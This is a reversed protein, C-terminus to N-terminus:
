SLGKGPAATRDQSPMLCALAYVLVAFLVALPDAPPLWGGLVVFGLVGIGLPVMMRRLGIRVPVRQLVLLMLLAGM